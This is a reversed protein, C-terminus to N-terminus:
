QKGTHVYKHTHTHTNRCSDSCVFFFYKFLPFFFFSFHVGRLGFRVATLAVWRRTQLGCGAGASSMAAGSEFGRRRWWLCAADSSYVVPTADVAVKSGCTLSSLVVRLKCEDTAHWQKKKGGKRKKLRSFPLLSPLPFYLSKSLTLPRRRRRSRFASTGRTRHFRHRTAAAQKNKNTPPSTPKAVEGYAVAAMIRWGRAKAQRGRRVVTADSVLRRSKQYKKKRDNKTM